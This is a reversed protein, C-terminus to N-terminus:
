PTLSAVAKFIYTFVSAIFMLVPGIIAVVIGRTWSRASEAKEKINELKAEHTACRSLGEHYMASHMEEVRTSTEIIMKRDEDTFAM